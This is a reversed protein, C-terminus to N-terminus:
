RSASAVAAASAPSGSGSTIREDPPTAVSSSAAACGARRARRPGPPPHRRRPARRAAAPTSFAIANSMPPVEVSTHRIRSPSAPRELRASRRRAASAGASARCGCPRRRRRSSRRARRPRRAARRGALARAGIGPRGAVPAAARQRRHGVRVQQEAPQRRPEGAPELEVARRGLAREAADVRGLRRPRSRRSAARAAADDRDLASVVRAVEREDREAAGPREVGARQGLLEPHSVTSTGAAAPTSDASPRTALSSRRSRTRSTGRARQVLRALQRALALGVQAVRGTTRASRAAAPPARRRTGGRARPRAVAVGVALALDLQDGHARRVHPRARAELERAASGSLDGPGAHTSSSPAVQQNGRPPHPNPISRAREPERFRSSVTGLSHIFM